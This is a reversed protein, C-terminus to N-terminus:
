GLLSLLVEEMEEVTLEYPNNKNGSHIIIKGLDDEKIGYHGLPKLDFQNQWADLSGILSEVGETYGSVNTGSFLRAVRKVKQEWRDSQWKVAIKKLTLEMVPKLLLGCAAGHPIDHLGGMPGAMGHVTGLGANTLTIGSLYAAYAMDSRYEPSDAQDGCLQKLSRVIRILGEFALTDTLVSAKTSFYSELLQCFADMGCAATVSRPCSLTLEPDVLAIEPIYNNHRLSKKYGGARDTIVANATAESGTGSTTPMAILPLTKGSPKKTGVGELYDKVSGEECCLAAVAKAADIVSGGGMAIVLSVKEKRCQAAAEDVVAPSPEGSLAHRSVKGAKEVAEIVERGAESSAVTKGTFLAIGGSPFEQILSSLQKREGWGFILRKNTKLEFPNIMAM